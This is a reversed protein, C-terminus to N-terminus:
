KEGEQMKLIIRKLAVKKANVKSVNIGLHSALDQPKSIEDVLMAKAIEILDDRNELLYEMLFEFQSIAAQIEEPTFSSSRNERHALMSETDVISQSSSSKEYFRDLDDQIELTKAEKLNLQNSIISKACGALHAFLNPCKDSNWPRENSLTKAIADHAIDESVLRSFIM